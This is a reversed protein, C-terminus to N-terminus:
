NPPGCAWGWEATPELGLLWIGTFRLKLFLHSGCVHLVVLSFLLGHCSSQTRSWRWVAMTLCFVHQSEKHETGVACAGM